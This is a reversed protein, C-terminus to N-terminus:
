REERPPRAATPEAGLMSAPDLVLLVRGDGLLTTGAVGPVTGVLGSPPRLVAEIRDEFRDVELAVAEAGARVVLLLADLDVIPLRKQGVLAGLRVVPVTRGRLVMANGGGVAHIGTRPRRVVEVIADMAIGYTEGGAGVVMVRALAITRPLHLRVTTGLGVRSEVSVRGGMREAAVRVADMGVGRGSLAGVSEATSFGPAFILDIVAADDLAAAAEPSRLGREVARRRIFAPDIGRGDDSVSVVIGDSDQGGEIRIRGAGPKGGRRRTGADELGHDVANRVVHLLPEFLNEVIGRDAETDEGAIDLIVEKGLGRAAERVPRAFRRFVQSLPMLRFSVASRHLTTSLRGINADAERIARALTAADEGAEARMALHGLANRSVILEGILSVLADVRGADVRLTRAADVGAPESVEPVEGANTASAATSPSALIAKIAERLGGAGNELALACREADGARGASRLANAAAQACAELRGADTDADGATALVRVQEALIAVVVSGFAPANALNAGGLVTRADVAPMDVTTVQDRVLRFATDVEARSADTLLTIDLNCIYADFEEDLPWPAGPEVSVALLGPVKRVLGLPDDGAFFCDGHPRYRVATMPKEGLDILSGALRSAWEPLPAADSAPTEPRRSLLSRYRGALADAETAAAGPLADSTEVADAWRATADLTELALDVLTADVALTGARAASLGDEAAHLLALWPPYDFLGVSGKLTHFARFVRNVIDADGPSAELALLDETASQVLERTEVLFQELLDNM